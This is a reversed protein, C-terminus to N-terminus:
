YQKFDSTSIDTKSKGDQDHDILFSFLLKDLLPFVDLRNHSQNSSISYISSNAGLKSYAGGRDGGLFFSNVICDVRESVSVM